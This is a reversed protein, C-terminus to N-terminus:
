LIGRRMAEYLCSRSCTVGSLGTRRYFIKQCNKCVHRLMTPGKRHRKKHETRTIVELNSIDNDNPDGNKHHVIEDENLWRGLHISMLYKGYSLTTRGRKKSVLYVITRSQHVIPGYVKYGEFPYPAEEGM